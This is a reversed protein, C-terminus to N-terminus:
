PILLNRIWQICETEDIISWSHPHRQGNSRYGKRETQIFEANKNGLILLRKILESGNLFNLDYASRRKVSLFWEMDVDYYLRIPIDKLFKENGVNESGSYFPTLEEYKELSDELTGINESLQNLVYKAEAIGSESIGYKLERKFYNWLYIIDVAPDAAFVGKPEIPFNNPHELCHEVYRLGIMGGGGFGGIVFQNPKVDYRAIVDKLISNINELSETDAYFSKGASVAVTLLNNSWAINQLKSEEFITEPPHGSTPFLVLVGQIENWPKLSLYYGGLSDQANIIIKEFDQAILLSTQCFVFLLVLIRKIM